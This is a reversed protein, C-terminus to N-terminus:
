SWAVVVRNWGPMIVGRQAGLKVPLVCHPSPRSRAKLAGGRGPPRPASTILTFASLGTGEAVATCPYCLQIVAAGAAATCM